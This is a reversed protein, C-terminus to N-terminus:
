EKGHYLELPKVKPEFFESFNKEDEHNPPPVPLTLERIIRIFGPRVNILRIAIMAIQLLLRVTRM